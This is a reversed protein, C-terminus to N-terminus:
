GHRYCYLLLSSVTSFFCNLSVIVVFTGLRQVWDWATIGRTCWTVEQTSTKPNITTTLDRGGGGRRWKAKITLCTVHCLHTLKPECHFECYYWTIWTPSPSFILERVVFAFTCKIRLTGHFPNQSKEGRYQLNFINWHKKAKYVKLTCTLGIWEWSVSHHWVPSLNTTYITTSQLFHAM